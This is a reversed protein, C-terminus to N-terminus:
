SRNKWPIYISAKVYNGYQAIEFSAENGYLIDLRKRTNIIGIGQIGDEPVYSGSNIVELLAGESSKKATISLLGGNALKSIGHKIGNETITQLLLPPFPMSRLEEDMHIEVLLREEFRIKELSLYKRVIDMEEGLSIEKKGGQILTYRLVMSLLTLAERAKAPDEDILARISNMANFMFHPNLQSKLQSLEIEAMSAKLELNRIEQLRYNEALHFGFYILNWSLMLFTFNLINSVLVLGHFNLVPEIGPLFLDAISGYLLTYFLGCLVSGGVMRPIVKRLSMKLWGQQKIYARYLHTTLIGLLFFLIATIYVQSILSDEVEATLVNLL